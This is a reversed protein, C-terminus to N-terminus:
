PQSLPQHGVMHQMSCSSMVARRARRSARRGDVTDADLGAAAALPLRRWGAWRARMAVVTIVIAAITPVVAYMATLSWVAVAAPEPTVLVALTDLARVELADLVAVGAVTACCAMVTVM